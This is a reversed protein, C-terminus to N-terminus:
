EQNLLQKERDYMRRKWAYEKILDVTVRETKCIAALEEDTYNLNAICLRCLPAIPCDPCMRNCREIFSNELNTLKENDIGGMNINGIIHESCFRECIYINGESSIFTRYMDELCTKVTLENGEKISQMGRYINDTWGIFQQTLLSNEGQKYREFAINLVSRKEDLSSIPNQMEYLNKPFIFSLHKPIKNKFLSNQEWEDSVMPLQNWRRLTVLFHVRQQYELPYKGKFYELNSIITQYTPKNSVTRRNADHLEENGDITIYIECDDVSCLWDVTSAVLAYGNSSISFGVDKGLKSRLSSIMWKIKDLALLAEGGYFTVITLRDPCRNELIFRVTQQMTEMSMIRSNHVRRDRYEGSFCCYSCRFNCQQTLEITFLSLRKPAHPYVSSFHWNCHNLKGVMISISAEIVLMINM